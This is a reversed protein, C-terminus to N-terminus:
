PTHQHVLIVNLGSTRTATGSSGDCTNFYYVRKKEKKTGLTSTWKLSGYCSDQWGTLPSHDYFGDTSEANRWFFGKNWAAQYENLTPLRWVLQAAVGAETPYGGRTLEAAYITPYNSANSFIFPTNTVGMSSYGWVLNTTTDLYGGLDPRWEFSGAAPPGPPQASSSNSIIGLVTAALGVTVLFQSKM